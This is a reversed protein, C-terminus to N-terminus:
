HTKGIKLSALEARLWDRLLDKEYRLYDDPFYVVRMQYDIDTLDRKGEAVAQGAADVARFELAIRPPYIGKIVRVQDRVPGRFLEFDGALDVDTIRIELRLPEPLADAATEVIYRQLQLLIAPSYREAESYRMDTFKEPDVFDVAVRATADAAASNPVHAPLSGLLITAALVHTSFPIKM